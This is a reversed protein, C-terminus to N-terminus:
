RQKGEMLGTVAERAWGSDQLIARGVGILDAQEERLLREAAQAETIGGTLIVPIPVAAKIARTLPAFFGQGTLGPVTYGSFGGSIDLICVGAKAFEKAATVSDEITTGGPTFDSAGLRLLLPFDEGVAERVGEIVELHIRIRGLVGGGYADTRKNTLPSFFQNLLYGHASHIEVGDFGAEKVRRAAEAFARVVGGIGGATLERPRDGRRPNPIPSPGVPTLGTVDVSAASGAHNLQMVARSGNKRIVAALSRLGAVVGDDAASLQGQSAKGEPSVYSHEVIVLGIYGGHTKGAYYDLLERSVKGDAGSKGTAMPPMVLRNHLLLSGAQIPKLLVSM